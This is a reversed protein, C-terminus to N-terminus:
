RRQNAFAEDALYQEFDAEDENDIRRAHRPKGRGTRRTQDIAKCSKSCFRGWGRKVDVVRALFKCGCKCTVEVMRPSPSRSM